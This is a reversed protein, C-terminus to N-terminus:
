IQGTCKRSSSDLRSSAKALGEFQIGPFIVELTQLHPPHRAMSGIQVEGDVRPDLGLVKVTLHECYRMNGEIMASVEPCKEFVQCALDLAKVVKIEKKNKYAAAMM